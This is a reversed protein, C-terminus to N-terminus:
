IASFRMFILRMMLSVQVLTKSFLGKTNKSVSLTNCLHEAKQHSSASCVLRRSLIRQTSITSCTLSSNHLQHYSLKLLDSHHATIRQLAPSHSSHIQLPHWVSCRVQLQLEVPSTMVQHWPLPCYLTAWHAARVAAQQPSNTNPDVGQPWEQNNLMLPWFNQQPRISSYSTRMYYPYLDPAMIFFLANLFSCSPINFLNFNSSTPKEFKSDVASGQIKHGEFKLCVNRM